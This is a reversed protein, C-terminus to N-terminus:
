FYPNLIVSLILLLWMITLGSTNAQYWVSEYEKQWAEYKQVLNKASPKTHSLAAEVDMTTITDLKIHLDQGSLHWKM